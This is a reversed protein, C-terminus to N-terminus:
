PTVWFLQVNFVEVGEGGGGGWEHLLIAANFLTTTVVTLLIIFTFNAQHHGALGFCM